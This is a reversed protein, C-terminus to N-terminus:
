YQRPQQQASIACSNKPPAMFRYQIAPKASNTSSSFVMGGPWRSADSEPSPRAAHPTTSKTATAQRPMAQTLAVELASRGHAGNPDHSSPVHRCYACPAWLLQMLGAQPRGGADVGIRTHLDRGRRVRAQAASGRGRAGEM